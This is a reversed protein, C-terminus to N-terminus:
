FPGLSAQQADRQSVSTCCVQTLQTPVRGSVPLMERPGRLGGSAAAEARWGGLPGTRQSLLQFHLPQQCTTPRPLESNLHQQLPQRTWGQAEVCLQRFAASLAFTGTRGTSPGSQTSATKAGPSLTRTSEQRQPKKM